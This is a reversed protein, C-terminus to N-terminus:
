GTRGKLAADAEKRSLFWDKGFRDMSQTSERISFGNNRQTRVRVNGLGAIYFGIVEYDLILNDDTIISVIDGVACPLRVLRGQQEADEFETLKELAAPMDRVTIVGSENRETLREVTGGRSGTEKAKEM